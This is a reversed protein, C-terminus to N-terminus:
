RASFGGDLPIAAGTLWSSEDSALFLALQAVDVPKGMRGLPIDAVRQRIAEERNLAQAFVTELMETQIIAPCVCNVRIGEAAHDLAMARTLQTVGGKAAVYAARSTRAVLGYVSGINIIAGGSRRMEPLAARSVLFTGTLIVDLLRRWEEESTQEVTGVFTAGANNVLVHLGGLAQATARVAHEAQAGDTVDCTVSICKGGQGRIEAAVAELPASRRGAIAVSAGELAFLEACARGIGTGGGTILATKGALRPM